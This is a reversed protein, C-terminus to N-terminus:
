ERIGHLKRSIDLEYSEKERQVSLVATTKNLDKLFSFQEVIKVYVKDIAKLREDDSMRLEGATIIMVLEDLCKVGENLLNGYVNAMVKLEDVTFNKDIKFQNLAAKCGKVIRLQYSIIDSIRKYRKVAPSVELLGDLFDKHLSFNGQSIDRINTYGKDIIKYGEYMDNLITKLQTLKEWNLLLQQIEQSQGFSRSGFNTILIILIWKKV